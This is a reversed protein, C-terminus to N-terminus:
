ALSPADKRIKSYVELTERATKHWDFEAARKFGKERYRGALDPNALLAIIAEAVSQVSAPDVILGAGGATEECVTGRSVIVPCGCAMAEVIPFGFGEYFSPYALARAANYFLPLDDDSVYGLYRVDPQKWAASMQLPRGIVVLELKELNRDALKVQHLAEIITGINRRPHIDGVFLLFDAGLDYRERLRSIVQLDDLRRFKTHDVGLYVAHVKDPSVNYVRLIERRSFESDTLIADAGVASRRYWLRRASSLKYPYWQPAAEYCVDHLTVVSPIRLGLPRTYGPAHFVDIHQKAIAQRLSVNTWILNNRGPPLVTTRVRQNRQWTLESIEQTSFLAPSVGPAM